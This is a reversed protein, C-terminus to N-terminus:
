YLIYQSCNNNLESEDTAHPYIVDMFIRIAMGDMPNPMDPLQDFLYEQLTYKVDKFGLNHRISSTGSLRCNIEFPVVTNDPIVISQINFSGVMGGCDIIKQAISNIQEDYQFTTKSRSTTGFSLEREMTFTGHLSGSKTAYVASTIEKGKLLPQIMYDNSLDKINKPNILVGRSGRGKRPKAIINSESYDFDQPLWSKAFPINKELHYLYSEYKDLYRKAVEVQSVVVMSKIVSKHLSLYYVEYDTSPLIIDISEQGIIKQIYPIYSPDFSYPVQYTRNCLHNGATFRAVDVGVINVNSYSDRINRVIGQGVNGGIGTVLVTKTEM